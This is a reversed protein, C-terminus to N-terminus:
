FGGVTIAGLRLASPLKSKTVAIIEAMAVVIAAIAFLQTAIAGAVELGFTLRGYGVVLGTSAPGIIRGLIMAIVAMAALPRILALVDVSSSGARDGGKSSEGSPQRENSSEPGAQGPPDQAAERDASSKM